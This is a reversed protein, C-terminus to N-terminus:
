ILIASAGRSNGEESAGNIVCVSAPAITLLVRDVTAALTLLLRPFRAPRM